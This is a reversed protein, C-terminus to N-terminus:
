KIIQYPTSSGGEPHWAEGNKIDSWAWDGTTTAGCWTAPSKIPNRCADTSRPAAVM